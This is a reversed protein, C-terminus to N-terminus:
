NDQLPEQNCSPYSMSPGWQDNPNPRPDKGEKGTYVPWVHVADKVFEHKKNDSSLAILPLLALLSLLLVKM